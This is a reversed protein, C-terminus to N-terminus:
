HYDRKKYSYLRLPLYVAMQLSYYLPIYTPNFGLLLASCLVNM